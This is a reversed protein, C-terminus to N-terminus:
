AGPAATLYAVKWQMAEKGTFGMALLTFGDRTLRYSKHKRKGGNPM